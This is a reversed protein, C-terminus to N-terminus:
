LAPQLLMTYAVWRCGHPLERTAHGHIRESLVDFRSFRIETKWAQLYPTLYGARYAVFSIQAVSSEGGAEASSFQLANLQM